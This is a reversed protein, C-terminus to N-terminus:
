ASSSGDSGDADSESESESGFLEEHLRKRAVGGDEHRGVEAELGVARAVREASRLVADAMLLGHLRRQLVAKLGAQRAGRAALEAKLGKTVMADLAVAPKVRMATPGTESGDLVMPTLPGGGCGVVPSSCEIAYAASATCVAAM